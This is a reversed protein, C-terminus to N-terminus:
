PKGQPERPTDETRISHWAARGHSRMVSEAWEPDCATLAAVLEHHHASV